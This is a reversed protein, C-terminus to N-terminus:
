RILLNRKTVTNIEIEKIVKEKGSILVVQYRGDEVQDFNYRCNFQEGTFSTDVLLGLTQHSIQVQIKRKEPNYAFVSFATSTKAAILSFSFSLEKQPVRNDNITATYLPQQASVTVTIFLAILSYIIKTQM